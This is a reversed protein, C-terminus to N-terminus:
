RGGCLDHWGNGFATTPASSAEFAECNLPNTRGSGKPSPRHKWAPVIARYASYEDTYVLKKRWPKPVRSFLVRGTDASRDGVAYVAYAIVQGTLFSVCLWTWIQNKKSGVFSWMEDAELSDGKQPPLVTTELPPLEQAKKGWGSSSLTAVSARSFRQKEPSVVCAGGAPVNRILTSCKNKSRPLTLAHALTAVSPKAVPTAVTANTAGTPQVLASLM